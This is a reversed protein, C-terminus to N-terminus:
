HASTLLGGNSGVAWLDCKSTGRIHTFNSGSQSGVAAWGADYQYVKTDNCVVYKDGDATVKLGVVPDCPTAVDTSWNGGDLPGHFLYGGAGATWVNYPDVFSATYIETNSATAISNTTWGLGDFHAFAAKHNSSSDTGFVYVNDDGLAVLDQVEVLPQDAIPTGGDMPVRTVYGHDNGVFILTDGGGIATVNGNTDLSSTLVTCGADPAATTYLFPQNGRAVYARGDPRAWVADYNGQQMCGGANIFGGDHVDPTRLSLRPNPGVLWVSGPQYVALDAIAGGGFPQPFTVFTGDCTNGGGAAGGGM